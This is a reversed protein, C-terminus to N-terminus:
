NEWVTLEDVSWYWVTTEGLQRLRLITTDRPPLDIDILLSNVGRTLGVLAQSLVDDEYVTEFHEGDTSSEIRLRRPHDTLVQASMEFRVRAVSYPQDFQLELWEEGSQPEGSSWRTELDGDLAFGAEEDHHSASARIAARPIERLDAVTQPRAAPRLRIITTSGFTRVQEVHNQQEVIDSLMATWFLSDAFLSAHFVLYRVGILRLGRVLGSTQGPSSLPSDQGRLFALLPTEYGSFGNVIPHRHQLTHYQFLLSDVWDVRVPLELVGGRPQEALWGYAADGGVAQLQPELLPCRMRGGYGEALTVGILLVGLSTRVPPSLWPFFRAVGLGALVSVALFVVMSFRAVVRLGDLGPVVALLWDYPGTPLSLEGWAAPQPGLSLVFAAVGILGYLLTATQVRLLGGVDGPRRRRWTALAVVTLALVTAGAFLEGEARGTRLVGGWVVLPEAVRLYSPVDASYQVIDGVDRVLGREQHTDYYARAVPATVAAIVLVAAGLEVVMRGRPRPARMLAALAVVVVPLCYFYLYYLNSFGQLLFAATFVALTRWSGGAGYRHLAWLGIPMWGTMLVQLHPAQAVRYPCFAFAVGALAAAWRQGTLSKVLLYMGSGALVYSFLFAVNYTLLPNSFIWQVPAVLVAIGLLHESYTLTNSYPFFFPADWVSQLGRLLQDADWALIWANLLPDGLDSPLAETMHRVLPYTMVLTLVTFAGLVM